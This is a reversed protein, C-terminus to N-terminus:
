PTQVYSWHLVRGDASGVLGAAILAASLPTFPLAAGLAARLPEGDLPPLSPVDGPRARRLARLHLALGAFPSATLAGFPRLAVPRGSIRRIADALDAFSLRYGPFDFTAWAPLEGDRGLLRVTAHALDPLHAWTHVRDPAGPHYLRYGGPREILLQSLLGDPTHAGILDGSRMLVGRAGAPALDPAQTAAYRNAHLVLRASQDAAACALASIGDTGLHPTGAVIADVGAAARALHKEQRPDGTLYEIDGKWGAWGIPRQTLSRVHWGAQLLASAMHAGFGHGTGIVLASKM